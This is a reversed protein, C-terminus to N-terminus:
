VCAGCWGTMSAPSEFACSASLYLLKLMDREDTGKGPGFYDPWSWSITVWLLAGPQMKGCAGVFHNPVKASVVTNSNYSSRGEYLPLARRVRLSQCGGRSRVTRGGQERECFCLDEGEGKTLLVIRRDYEGIPATQLVMGTVVTQDM